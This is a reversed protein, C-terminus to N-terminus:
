WDLEVPEADVDSLGIDLVEDVTLWPVVTM